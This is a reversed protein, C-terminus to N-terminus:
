RVNWRFAATPLTMCAHQFETPKREIPKPEAAPLVTLARDFRNSGGIPLSFNPTLDTPVDSRNM